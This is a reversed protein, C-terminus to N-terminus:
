LKSDFTIKLNMELNKIKIRKDIKKKVLRDSGRPPAGHFLVMCWVEWGGVVVGGLWKKYIEVVTLMVKWGGNVVGLGCEMEVM